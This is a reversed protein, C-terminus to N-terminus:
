EISLIEKIKDHRLQETDDFNLKFTRELMPQGSVYYITNNTLKAIQIHYEYYQNEEFSIYSKNGIRFSRRCRALM